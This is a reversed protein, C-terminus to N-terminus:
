GAAVSHVGHYTNEKSIRLRNESKRKPNPKRHGYRSLPCIKIRVVGSQSASNRSHISLPTKVPNPDDRVDRTQGTIVRSDSSSESQKAM